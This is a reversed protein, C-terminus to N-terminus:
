LANKTKDPDEPPIEPETYVTFYFDGEEPAQKFSQDFQLVLALVPM